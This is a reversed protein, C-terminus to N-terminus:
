RSSGNPMVPGCASGAIRSIAGDCLAPEGSIWGSGLYGIYLRGFVDKDAEMVTVQDLRGLPYDVLRQWNQGADVSRWIGYVGDVKGSLYLAPYSKGAAAKGFAIDDVATIRDFATWTGGGDTSRRLRTDGGGRAGSVFFLHGGHGPVARLKAANGNDPSIDGIYVQEWREGGDHTRWLGRLRDNAGGGSHFLYFTGPQVRDAALTKRQIWISRFSGTRPLIEGPFVVREWTAGRDKTYFPARDYAPMWVINDVTDAAVAITGFSMRWPDEPSTGPPQPLTAFRRWSRGGDESYGAMVARGDESCCGTRTDSANTVLFHPNAPTWALQEAAILVREVPGYSTSFRDLDSKVHIGFDMAAFVPPMGPPQVVDMAVLEEIGRVQSKWALPGCPAGRDARYPGTGAAAWLRGQRAPDFAISGTAFYGQDAVHLWGPEGEGPAVSKGMATWDTGFSTSCWANGGEDVVLAVGDAADTAVGTYRRAPLVGRATLSSWQGQHLLWASQDNRDVAIMDGSATFAARWITRPGEGKAGVPGFTAGGDGSRFLGNGPSAAYVVWAHGPGFLTVIGPGAKEASGALPRAPPVSAIRLWNQGGDGTRWLGDEATGFFAVEPDAPNVALFPGAFRGDANANFRFTQTGARAWHAGGDYSRFLRGKIALFLRRPDSPAVAVEYVGANAADTFRDTDPMSAATILPVWRDRGKDWRYAGHVDTRALMVSGDRSFALGTIFGGGGIAVPRWGYSEGPTPGTTSLLARPTLLPAASGSLGIQIFFGAACGLVAGASLLRFSKRLVRGKVQV